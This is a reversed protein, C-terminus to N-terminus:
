EAAEASEDAPAADTIVASDLMIQFAKEKKQENIIYESGFYAKLQEADVKIEEAVKAIYAEIDEESVEINEAAIIANILIEQQVQAVAAPRVTANVTDENLGLAELLEAYPVKNDSMGYNAAYQRVLEETKEDFMVAPIDCTMNECATQMLQARVENEQKEAAHKELKARVDATYEAVTDFESIDQVFEDSLAEVEKVSLSNLKVKFVVAKGALEPTYNEPFTIDIDKEEGIQMGVVQEEFGPVFSKSGLELSYGEAKGGDFAVGDLYGDFDINATDGMEAAREVSVIRANRKLDADIEAQVDEDTVVAPTRTATLGKYQGLTVEPYLTVSFTYVVTKEETVNIDAIAPTGVIKLEKETVGQMFAAEVMVDFADQYFVEAGYMSEIMKRPAKGKRFGPMNISGKNKIYAKNLAAEFEAATTEVQFLTVNNEKTEVSKTIM